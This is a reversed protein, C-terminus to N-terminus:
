INRSSRQSSFFKEYTAASLGMKLIIEGEQRSLRVKRDVLDVLFPIGRGTGGTTAYLLHLCNVIDEDSTGPLFDCAAAAPRSSFRTFATRYEKKIPRHEDIIFVEGRNLLGYLLERDYLRPQSLHLRPALEATAIEEIVGVLMTGNEDAMATLENWGPLTDFLLLGGDMLMLRPKWLRIAEAAAKVELAALKRQVWRPYAEAMSIMKQRALQEIEEAAEPLLPSYCKIETITEKSNSSIAMARQLIVTHPYFPGYEVRSGDCAAVTGDQLWSKLEQNDVELQVLIGQENLRQKIIPAAPVGRYDNGLQRELDLIPLLFDPSPM